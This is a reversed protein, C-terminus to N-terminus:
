KRGVLIAAVGLGLILLSSPEAVSKTGGGVQGKPYPESQRDNDLRCGLLLTLVIGTAWLLRKM